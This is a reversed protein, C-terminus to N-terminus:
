TFMFRLMCVQLSKVLHLLANMHMESTSGLKGVVGILSCGLAHRGSENGTAPWLACHGHRGCDWADCLSACCPTQTPSPSPRLSGSVAAPALISCAAFMFWHSSM